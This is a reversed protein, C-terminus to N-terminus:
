RVSVSTVKTPHELEEDLAAYNRGHWLKVNCDHSATMLISGDQNYQLSSVLKVHSPITKIASKRRLDFIETLNNRGAIALEFGNPHFDSCLISNNTGLEYVGKGTRLDWVMGWGGLDGTFILSGDPHM